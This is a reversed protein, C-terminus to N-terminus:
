LAPIFVCYIIDYYILAVSQLQRASFLSMSTAYDLKIQVVLSKRMSKMWIQIVVLSHSLLTPVMMKGPLSEWKCLLAELFNDLVCFLCGPCMQFSLSILASKNRTGAEQYCCITNLQATELEWTVAHHFSEVQAWELTIAFSIILYDFILAIFFRFTREERSSLGEGLFLFYLLTQWPLPAKQEEFISTNSQQSCNSYLPVTEWYGVFARSYKTGQGWNIHPFFSEMHDKCKVCRSWKM